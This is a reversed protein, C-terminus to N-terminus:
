GLGRGQGGVGGGHGPRSSPTGTALAVLLSHAAYHLTIGLGAKPGTLPHLRAPACQRPFQSAKLMRQLRAADAATRHPPEGPLQDPLYEIDLCIDRFAAM